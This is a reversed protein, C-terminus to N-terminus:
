GMFLCSLHDRSSTHDKEKFSHIVSGQFVLPCNFFFFFSPFITTQRSPLTSNRCPLLWWFYCASLPWSLNSEAELVETSAKIWPNWLHSTLWLTAPQFPFLSFALPPLPIILPITFNSLNSPPECITNSFLFTRRQAKFFPTFSLWPSSPGSSHM